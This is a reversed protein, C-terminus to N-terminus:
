QTAKEQVAATAAAQATDAATDSTSDQMEEDEGEEDDAEELGNSDAPTGSGSREEKLKAGKREPLVAMFAQGWDGLELWKLMIELVHNTVLVQRSKMELFEGIPLKATKIGREVARKHCVGKHRNKDVLGGIIYTCNPDLTTLTNESESSLYIVEGEADSPKDGTEPAEAEAKMEGETEGAAIAGKMAGAVVGGREGTMWERSKKGVEVFDEEFFKFGKWSTHQNGLVGEFREKMKGGWNSIALHTRYKAKRNDSYCRTIQLALSKLEADFMLDEWSCDFVVTIPVQTGSGPTNRSPRTSPPPPINGNEDPKNAAAWEERRREKKEKLKEKRKLKRDERGSEWREHRRQKKLQNKSIKPEEVTAGAAEDAAIATESNATTLPSRPEAPTTIVPTAGVSAAEEDVQILKRLKAPRADYAESDDAAPSDAPSTILPTVGV